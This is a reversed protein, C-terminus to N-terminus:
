TFLYECVTMKAGRYKISMQKYKYAYSVSFEILHLTKTFSYKLFLILSITSYVFRIYVKPPHFKSGAPCIQVVLLDSHPAIKVVKLICKLISFKQPNIYLCYTFM